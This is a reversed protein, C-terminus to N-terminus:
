SDTLIYLCFLFHIGLGLSDAVKGVGLLVFGVGEPSGLRMFGADEPSGLRM